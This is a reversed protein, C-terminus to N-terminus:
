LKNLVFGLYLVRHADCYARATQTQLLFLFFSNELIELPACASTYKELGFQMLYLNQVIRSVNAFWHWYTSEYDELIPSVRLGRVHEVPRGGGAMQRALHRHRLPCGPIGACSAPEGM